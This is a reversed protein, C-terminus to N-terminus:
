KRKKKASQKPAPKASKASAPSTQRAFPALDRMREIDSQAQMPSAYSQTSTALVKGKDDHFRWGFKGKGAAHIEYFAKRRRLRHFQEHAQLRQQIYEAAAARTPPPPTVKGSDPHGDLQSLMAWMDKQRDTIPKQMDAASAPPPMAPRNLKTPADTRPANLKRLQAAFSKAEADRKTLSGIGFLDRLTAMISTHQYPTSDVTGKQIWPSILVTPVRLGLRTFDFQMNPKTLYGKNKPDNQALQKVYANPSTLRDPNSVGNPPSVHDFYGGHEDYTVILLSNNWLPGNRLAEYVDAILNEGLRIDYPAHQSNPQSGDKGTNMQPCLFSYTPLTGASAQQAFASLQFIRTTRSKLAPFSDSDSLDVFFFAWDFGAQELLQYVTQASIPAQWENDVFGASTAAHVFLRNPETPGPVESYWNDCVCFQSALTSIVPTQAASFTTMPETIEADTPNTRHVSTQLEHIYGSVFGDLPAPDPVDASTQASADLQTTADSFSHGPGGFGSKQAIDVTPIVYNGPSGAPYKKSTPDAPNALNFYKPDPNGDAGLIGDVNPMTGLMHDFSRNEMMLVVVHQIPSPNAM